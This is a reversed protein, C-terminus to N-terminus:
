GQQSQISTIAEEVKEGSRQGRFELSAACVHVVVGLTTLRVFYPNFPSSLM